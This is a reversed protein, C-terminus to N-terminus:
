SVRGRVRMVTQAKWAEMALVVAVELGLFCPHGNAMEVNEADEEHGILANQESRDELTVGDAKM